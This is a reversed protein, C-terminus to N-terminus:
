AAVGPGPHPPEASVPEDLGVAARWRDMEAQLRQPPTRYYAAFRNLMCLTFSREGREILSILTAHVRLARAVDALRQGRLLRRARLPSPRSTMTPVM